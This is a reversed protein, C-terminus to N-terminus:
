CGTPYIAGLTLLTGHSKRTMLRGFLGGGSSSLCLTREEGLLTFGVNTGNAPVFHGPKEEFTVDGAVEPTPGYRGGSGIGTVATIQGSTYRNVIAARRRLNAVPPQIFSM